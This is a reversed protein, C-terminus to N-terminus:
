SGIKGCVAVRGKFGLASMAGEFIMGGVNEFNMNIGKNSTIKM